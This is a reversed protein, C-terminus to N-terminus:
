KKNNQIKNLINLVVEESLGLRDSANKLANSNNLNESLKIAGAGQNCYPFTLCKKKVQVFKGGKYLPKKGGRWNKSNKAVFAPTSYAGTSATTTAETAEEKAEEIRKLKTYYNPDEALHDMAIEKAVEIDDTHEMEVKVGEAFEKMLDDIDVKHKNAIDTLDLGQALGGPIVDEFKYIPNSTMYNDKRMITKAIIKNAQQMFPININTRNDKAVIQGYQQVFDLFKKKNKALRKFFGTLEAASIPKDNRPDTLRDFFHKDTIVVDVPNLQRDAYKDIQVLDAMPIETLVVEIGENVM